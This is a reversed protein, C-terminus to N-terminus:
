ETTHFINRYLGSNEYTYAYEKLFETRQNKALLEPLIQSASSEYAQMRDLNLDQGQIMQEADVVRQAAEHFIDELKKKEQSFEAFKDDLYVM